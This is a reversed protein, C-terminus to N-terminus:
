VYTYMVIYTDIDMETGIDQCIFIQAYLCRASRWLYIVQRCYFLLIIFYFKCTNICKAVQQM